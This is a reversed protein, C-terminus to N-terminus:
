RETMQDYFELLTEGLHFKSISVLERFEKSPFITIVQLCTHITIGNLMGWKLMGDRNLYGVTQCRTAKFMAHVHAQVAPLPKPKGAFTYM